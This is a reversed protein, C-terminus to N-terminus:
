EEVYFTGDLMSMHIARKMKNGCASLMDLMHVLFATSTAPKVAAGWEIRGHHSLIIHSICMSDRPHLMSGLDYRFKEVSTFTHPTLAIAEAYEGNQAYEYLKGYDHYLIGILAYFANFKVPCASRNNVFVHLMSLMEYVHELLGGPYDHHIKHAGYAVAYYDGLEKACSLIKDRTEDPIRSGDETKCTALISSVLEMLQSVSPINTKYKDFENGAYGSLAVASALESAQVKPFQASDDLESSFVSGILNEYSGEDFLFADVSKQDVSILSLKYFRSGTKSIGATINRIYYTKM